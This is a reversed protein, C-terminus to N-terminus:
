AGRPVYLNMFALVALNCLDTAAHAAIPWRLSGSRRFVVGWGVGMIFTSVLTASHANAISFV